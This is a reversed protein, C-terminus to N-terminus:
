IKEIKGVIVLRDDDFKNKEKAERIIKDALLQPAANKLKYNDLFDGVWLENPSEVGDSMIIVYDGNTIQTKYNDIETKKTVGVPLSSSSIRELKQENRRVIYSSNAGLKVIELNGNFLDIIAIDATAYKESDKGLLLVSSVLDIAKNKPLGAALFIRMLSSTTQSYMSAIKGNGCGDSLTMVMKNESIKSISFSDGCEINGEKASMAVGIEVDFSPRQVIKAMTRGDKTENIESIRMKRGTVAQCLAVIEEIPYQSRINLSIELNNYMNKVVIISSVSIGKDRFESYLRGEIEPVFECLYVVNDRKRVKVNENKVASNNSNRNIQNKLTTLKLCNSSFYKPFDEELIAGFETYTSQLSALASNTSNYHKVWCDTSKKCHKCVKTAAMDIVEDFTPEAPKNAIFYRVKDLINPMAELPKKLINNLNTM